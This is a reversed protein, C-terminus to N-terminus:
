VFISLVTLYRPTSRSSAKISESPMSRQRIGARRSICRAARLRRDLSCFCQFKIEGSRVYPSAAALEVHTDIMQVDRFHPTFAESGGGAKARLLAHFHM